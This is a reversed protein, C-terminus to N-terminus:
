SGKAQLASVFAEATAVSGFVGGEVLVSRVSWEHLGPEIAGCGEAILLCQYGRDNGERMTTHVCVDITNGVFALARVGRGTLIRDLDTGSFAGNATKDIVIEGEQPRLEEIIQFGAEGRVLVRGLPGASGLITGRREALLRRWKPWDALDPRYGQRTHIVTLGAARAADLCRRIAPIPARLPTLDHGLQGIYGAPDCFDRQMDIVALAAQRPELAELPWPYPDAEVTRM